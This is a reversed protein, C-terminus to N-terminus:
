LADIMQEAEQRSIEAIQGNEGHIFRENAKLIWIRANYKQHQRDDPEIDDWNDLNVVNTGTQRFGLLFSDNPHQRFYRRDHVTFDERYYEVHDLVIPKLQQYFTM